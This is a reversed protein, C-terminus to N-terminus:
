LSVGWDIKTGCCPCFKLNNREWNNEWEWELNIEDGHGRIPGRIEDEGCNPCRYWGCYVEDDSVFNSKM